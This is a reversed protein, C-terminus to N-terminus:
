HKRIKQIITSLPLIQYSLTWNKSFIQKQGFFALIPKFHDFTLIKFAKLFTKDNSKEPKPTLQFNKIKNWCFDLVPSFEQEQTM